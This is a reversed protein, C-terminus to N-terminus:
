VVLDDLWAPRRPCAQDRVFLRGNTLPQDYM